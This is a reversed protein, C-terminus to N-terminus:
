EDFSLKIKKGHKAKSGKNPQCTKLNGHIANSPQMIEQHSEDEELGVVKGILRKKRMGHIMNNRKLDVSNNTGKQQVKDTKSKVNEEQSQEDELEKLEWEKKTLTHRTEEDFYVPEDEAELDLDRAKLPRIVKNKRHDDTSTTAHLRALFPPLTNDYTLNKSTIKSM